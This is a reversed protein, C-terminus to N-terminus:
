AFLIKHSNKVHSRLKTLIDGKNKNEETLKLFKRSKSERKGVGGYYGIMYMAFMQLKSHISYTSGIHPSVFSVKKGKVSQERHKTNLLCSLLKDTFCFQCCLLAKLLCFINQIVFCDIISFCLHYFNDLLYKRLNQPANGRNGYM